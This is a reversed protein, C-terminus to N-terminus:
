GPDLANAVLFSGRALIMVHARVRARSSEVLGFRLASHTTRSRCQLCM